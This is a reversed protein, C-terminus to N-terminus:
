ANPNTKINVNIHNIHPYIAPDSAICLGFTKTAETIAGPIAGPLGGMTAPTIFPAIVIAARTKAQEMCKDLTAQTSVAISKPVQVELYVRYRKKNPLPTFVPYDFSAITKTLTVFEIPIPSPSPTVIPINVSGITAANKYILILEFTQNRHEFSPFGGAFGQQKAYNQAKKMRDENSDLENFGLESIPVWRREGANKFLRIAGFLKGSTSIHFDPFGGLYRPDNRLARDVNRIHVTFDTPSSDLDRLDDKVGYQPYIFVAEYNNDIKNFTPFGGGFHNEGAYNGIQRFIEAEPLDLPRFYKWNTQNSDTYHYQNYIPYAYNQYYSPDYYQLTNTPHLYRLNYQQHYHPNYFSTNINGYQDYFNSHTIQISSNFQQFPPETLHLYDDQYHYM